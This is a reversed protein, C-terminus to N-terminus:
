DRDHVRVTHADVLDACGVVLDWGSDLGVHGLVPECAVLPGLDLCAASM